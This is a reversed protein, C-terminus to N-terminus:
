EAPQPPDVLSIGLEALAARLENVLGGEVIWTLIEDLHMLAFSRGHDKAQEELWGGVVPEAYANLHGNFILVGEREDPARPLQVDSLPVQFMEELEDRAKPWTAKTIDGAKVQYMRLVYRGEEDVLAVIDKGYEIPGHRIQAYLPMQAQMLRLLLRRLVAEDCISEVTRYIWTQERGFIEALAREGIPGRIANAVAEGVLPIRGLIELAVPLRGSVLSREPARRIEAFADSATDLFELALRDNQDLGSMRAQQLLAERASSLAIEPGGGLIETLADVLVRFCTVQPNVWGSETGNLAAAASTVLPAAGDPTRIIQAIAARARFYKAWLDVNISSWSGGPPPHEEDYVDQAFQEAAQTFREVAQEPAVFGAVAARWGRLGHSTFAKPCEAAISHAAVYDGARVFLQFASPITLILSRPGFRTATANIEFDPFRASWQGSFDTELEFGRVLLGARASESAEARALQRAREAFEEYLGRLAHRVDSRDAGPYNMGLENGWLKLAALGVLPPTQPSAVAAEFDHMADVSCAVVADGDGWALDVAQTLAYGAYFHQCEARWAAAIERVRELAQYHPGNAPNYDFRARLFPLFAEATSSRPGSVAAM